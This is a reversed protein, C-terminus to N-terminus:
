KKLIVIEEETFESHPSSQENQTNLLFSVKAECFEKIEKEVFDYVELKKYKEKKAQSLLCNSESVAQYCEILDISKQMEKLKEEIM